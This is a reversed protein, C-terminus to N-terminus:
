PRLAHIVRADVWFINATSNEPNERDLKVRHFFFFRDDSTVSGFADEESSNVDGGLNIADGWSGDPERFSVYLDSGGFGDARESDWILYSEDPAIFPHATFTGSNIQQGFAEPRQRQGNVLRSFRITGVDDAEDFVYTESASSTLRMISYPEFMPGLSKPASWGNATQQRVRNGLFMTQGDRSVFVAEDHTQEVPDQWRGDELRISWHKSPEGLVQRVFFFETMNPHLAGMVELHDTGVHGPAFRVPILGPPKQGLVTKPRDAAEAQEPLGWAAAIAAGLLSAVLVGRRNM